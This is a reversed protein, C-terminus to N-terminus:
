GRGAPTSLFHVASSPALTGLRNQEVLWLADCANCGGRSARRFAAAFGDRFANAAGERGISLSCAFVDGIEDVHAFLNGAYCPLHALPDERVPERFRAWGRLHHLDALANAVPDGARRAAILRRLARRIARDEANEEDEPLPPLAERGDGDHLVHFGARFGFRRALRLIDDVDDATARTLVTRTEVAVRGALAKIAEIAADWAGAGFLADHTEITGELAIAVTDAAALEDARAAARLGNTVVRVNLRVDKAARILEGIDGRVLPEGGRFTVAVAGAAAIEGVLRRANDPPMSPGGGAREFWTARPELAVSVHLPRRRGLVRYALTGYGIRLIQFATNGM